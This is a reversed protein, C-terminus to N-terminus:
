NQYTPNSTKVITTIFFNKRRPYIAMYDLLLRGTNQPFMNGEDDPNFVLGPLFGVHFM